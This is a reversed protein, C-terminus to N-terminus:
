EALPDFTGMGGVQADTWGITQLLTVNNTQASLKLGILYYEPRFMIVKNKTDVLRQKRTLNYRYFTELSDKQLQATAANSENINWAQPRKVNNLFVSTTNTFVPDKGDVATALGGGTVSSSVRLEMGNRRQGNLPNVGLYTCTNGGFGTLAWTDKLSAQGAGGDWLLWRRMDDFRKGEFALEIQREYLIAAFLAARNGALADDLGCNGTYGVRMRIKRLADLAEQGHNAGCAAEAFNLLVEAYRIEMYPAASRSFPTSTLTDYVYLTTSNIALDDSRKRIYIGKYNTALKDAGFGSLEEDSQKTTTEYWAYNWLQYKSGPTYPSVSKKPLGNFAWQVGPFAFTRYFRPDRDKFFIEKDYGNLANKDKDIAPLGTAMPFLDVMEATTGKGGGGGTNYPRISNEWTNNINPATGNTAPALNNYLSVFVAEPSQYDSFMKAWGAANIGPTNLYALGYFGSADLTDVARKNVEYATQWRAPDDARNFLPSSYLLRARGALALATGATVRGWNAADWTLPLYSAAKELDKCLFDICEKTTSRPIALDLGGSVGAVPNQVHDVIPVGGYVKVLRYYTWARFFYAQGLLERKQVDPLTGGLIGEIADNCNRIRGWASRSTKAENYFFDPVTTNTMVNDSVFDSLGGYEETSTGYLDASGTSPNDYSVDSNSKPLCLSYIDNIRGKAGVYDNYIEATVRSYDQKEQLFNDSCGAMLSVAAIFGASLIYKNLNKM